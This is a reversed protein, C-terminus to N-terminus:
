RLQREAEERAQELNEKLVPDVFEIIGERQASLMMQHFIQQGAEQQRRVLLDEALDDRVDEFEVDEPPIERELKLLHFNTGAQVPESLEGPEKMALAASQIAPPINETDRSIPPMLGGEEASPNISEARALEEFDAGQELKDLLEQADGLTATQIHRVVVQRGYAEGFARELEEDSIEVQDAALESLATQRWTVLEWIGECIGHQALVQDLLQQHDVPADVQGFFQDLMKAEQRRIDEESITIGEAAITQRVLENAILHQAVELGHAQVLLDHLEDMYIREGHVTAMVARQDDPESPLQQETRTEPEIRDAPEAPETAPTPSTPEPAQGPEVQEPECGAIIAALVTITLLTRM